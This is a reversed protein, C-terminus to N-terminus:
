CRNFSVSAVPIGSPLNAHVRENPFDNFNSTVCLTEPYFYRPSTYAFAPVEAFNIIFEYMPMQVLVAVGDLEVLILDHVCPTGGLGIPIAWWGRRGLSESCINM